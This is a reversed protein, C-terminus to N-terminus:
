CCSTQQDTVPTEKSVGDLKQERSSLILVTAFLVSGVGFFMSLLNASFVMAYALFMCCLQYKSSNSSLGRLFRYGLVFCALSLVGVLYWWVLSKGSTSLLLFVSGVLSFISVIMGLYFQRPFDKTESSM